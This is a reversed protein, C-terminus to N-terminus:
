SPNFTANLGYLTLTKQQKKIIYIVTWTYEIAGVFMM